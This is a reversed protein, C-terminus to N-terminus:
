ENSIAEALRKINKEQERIRDEMDAIRTEVDHLRSSFRLEQKTKEDIDKFEPIFTSNVGEGMKYKIKYIRYLLFCIILVLLLIVVSFVLESM